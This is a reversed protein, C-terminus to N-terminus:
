QRGVAARTIADRHEPRFAACHLVYKRGCLSFITNKKQLFFAAGVRTRVM